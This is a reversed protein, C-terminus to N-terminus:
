LGGGGSPSLVVKVTSVCPRPCLVFYHKPARPLAHIIDPTQSFSTSHNTATQRHIKEASPTITLVKTRPPFTAFLYVTNPSMSLAADNREMIVQSCTDDFWSEAQHICRSWQICCSRREDSPHDLLAYTTWPLIGHSLGRLVVTMTTQCVTGGRSLGSRDDCAVAYQVTRCITNKGSRHSCRM